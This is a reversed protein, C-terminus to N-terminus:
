KDSEKADAEVTDETVVQANETQAETKEEESVVQAEETEPEDKVEKYAVELAEEARRRENAARVTRSAVWVDTVGDYILAIGIFQLALRVVGFANVICLLGLIISVLAIILMSWWKEYNDRKSELALKIDQIGHVCLIVGIVIPVLSVVSDPHIFIWGGILLVITGLVAGFPHLERNMFYSIIYFIGIVALGIALIKCFIGITKAPWVLLVIGLVTCLLAQLIMDAKVQKMKDKM